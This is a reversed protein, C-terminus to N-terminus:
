RVDRAATLRSAAAGAALLAACLGLLGYALWDGHRTYFSGGQGLRVSDVVVAAQFVATARRVTGDPDVLFSVGTNACRVLGTRNEVARLVAMSAHQWPAARRGFWEDNTINVLLDAGSRVEERAISTFISEFCILVGCRAVGADLPRAQAGPTWEAQGFDLRGLFPLWRQFPMREGFPVLHVKDYLGDLEGSPLVVSSSNYDLHGGRGDPRADPFGTLIPLRLERALSTVHAYALDDYRLYSPVATEPWVVLQPREEAAARTLRLHVGLNQVLYRPDWKIDGQINPQIIAVRLARGAPV